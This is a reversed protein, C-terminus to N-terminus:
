MCTNLKNNIIIIINNNEPFGNKFQFRNSQTETCFRRISFLLEGSGLLKSGSQSLPLIKAIYSM